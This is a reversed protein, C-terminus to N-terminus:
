GGLPLLLECLDFVHIRQKVGEANECNMEFWWCESKDMLAAAPGTPGLESQLDSAHCIHGDTEAAIAMIAMIAMRRMRRMRFKKVYKVAVAPQYRRM